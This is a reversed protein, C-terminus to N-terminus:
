NNKKKIFDSAKGLLEAVFGVMTGSIAGKWLIHWGFGSFLVIILGIVIGIIFGGWVANRRGWYVALLIISITGLITWINLYEM